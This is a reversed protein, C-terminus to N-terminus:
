FPRVYAHLFGNQTLTDPAVAGAIALGYQAWLQQNTLGAVPAGIVPRNPDTSGQGTQPVIFDPAQQTYYVQFNKGVIGDYNYVFVLDPVIVNRSSAQSYNMVLAQLPLGALAAFVDSRLVTTHAVLGLGGGVTWPTENVVDTQDQLYSNAITTTGVAHPPAHIGIQFGQINANTITLNVAVYDSTFIGQNAIHGIDTGAGQGRAVFGDVTLNATPYLYMGYTYINWARFDKIVGGTGYVDKMGNVGVGLYWASLGGYTAGYVENNIFGALPTLNVDEITYQGAQTDDAGKHTPVHVMWDSGGRTTGLEYGYAYPSGDGRIDAAVNDRVINGPGRFWFGLGENGGNGQAVQSVAGPRTGDGEIRVVFNHEFVNGTENGSETVIGAGDWNYVVNDQILGYHSDNVVLGWKFVMPTLPCYVSNGLFTFQYGDTPTTTPGALHNFYVPYRGGENTGLHTVNGSADYTTNNLPGDDDLGETRGLGAFAVYRIDVIARGLFEVHGRTGTANASRVRVNRSLVGVDPLFELNGNADRSGLHDFQLPASLTITKGDASIGAIIPTEWQPVYNTYTGARELSGLQHTDPLVLKDGVQWGTVAQALTLTTDGAHAESALKVFTTNHQAGAMFVNGLGLLGHGYQSPDKTLDLPTDAFVIQASVAASVPQAVTGVTLTGGPLVMLNVVTLQTNVNTRFQLTGGALISVTDVAQTSVVDYTVTKGAGINVVDGAGPLHGASWVTPDSWNGSKVAVDTPFEGFNPIMDTPTYIYANPDGPWMNVSLSATGAPGTLNDLDTVAVKATYTGATAYTHSISAGSGTTGDGFNWTYKFGARTDAVSPSTAFASFTFAAGAVGTGPGSATVKPAVDNVKIATTYDTFAGSLLTLRAHVTRTSPGDDLYSAPVVATPSTSNNVEFVGDNNFDYSYTYGTTDAPLNSFSVTGTSGENVPGSNILIPSGTLLERKELTEL